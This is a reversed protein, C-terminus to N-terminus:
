ADDDWGDSNGIHAMFAQPNELKLDESPAQARDKQRPADSKERKKKARAQAARGRLFGAPKEGGDARNEMGPSVEVTTANGDHRPPAYGIEVSSSSSLQSVLRSRKYKDIAGANEISRALRRRARLREDESVFEEQEQRALKKLLRHFWLSTGQSYRKQVNPLPQYSSTVSNWVRIESIDAPDLKIKVPVSNSPKRRRGRPAAPLLDALLGTVIDRDHFRLGEVKIGDRTLTANKVYGCADDIRTLDDIFDIGYKRTLKEWRLLPIDDIGRHHRYQYVELIFQLVLEELRDLTMCAQKRPDIGQERLQKPPAPVGGPLKHLLGTNLTGFFREVYTKFEPTEVPAWEVDIGLDRLSDQMSSGVNELANDLIFLKGCGFAVFPKRLDPFKQAVLEKKWTLANKICNMVSYISPPEFTIFTGLIMRTCVDIAVLLTPRGLVNGTDPDVIIFADMPTADIMVVDLPRKAERGSGAGSYRRRAEKEGFKKKYFDYNECRRIWNRVTEHSPCTLKSIRGYRRARLNLKDVVTKLRDCADYVTRDREAYYWYVCKILLRSVEQSMRVSSSRKRRRGMIALPRLGNETRNRIDRRFTGASPRWGAADLEKPLDADRIFAKLSKDSLAVPSKDYQVLLLQRIKAKPGLEVNPDRPTYAKLSAARDRWYDIRRSVRLQREAHQKLLEDQSMFISEHGFQKQLVLHGDPMVQKLEYDGKLCSVIDGVSLRLYM